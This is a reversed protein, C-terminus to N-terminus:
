RAGVPLMEGDKIIYLHCKPLAVLLRKSEEQSIECDNFAIGVWGRMHNAIRLSHLQSNSPVSSLTIRYETGLPWVPISGIRGGCQSVARSLLKEKRGVNVYDIVLGVTILGALTYTIKAFRKM